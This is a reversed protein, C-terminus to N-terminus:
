FKKALVSLLSLIFSFEVPSLLEIYVETFENNCSSRIHATKECLFRILRQGNDQLARIHSFAIWQYRIKSISRLRM